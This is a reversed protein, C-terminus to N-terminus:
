WVQAVAPERLPGSLMHPQPNSLSQPRRNNHVGQLGYRFLGRGGETQPQKLLPVVLAGASCRGTTKCSLFGRGLGTTPFRLGLTDRGAGATVPSILQSM